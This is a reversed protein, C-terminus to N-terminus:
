ISLRLKRWAVSLREDASQSFRKAVELAELTQKKVLRASINDGFINVTAPLPVHVMKTFGAALMDLYLEYDMSYKNKENYQVSDFVTRSIFIDQLGVITGFRVLNRRNIILNPCRRLSYSRQESFYFYSDFYVADLELREFYSGVQRLINPCLLDDTGMYGVVNGTASKLGINLASSIGSDEEQIWIVKGPYMKVFREIVEHSGDTSKGDIIILEKNDYEQAVFSQIAKAIHKIGNFGPMLVSICPDKKECHPDNRM